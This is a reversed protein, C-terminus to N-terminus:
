ALLLTWLLGAASRDIPPFCGTPQACNHSSERDNAADADCGSARYLKALGLAARLEISRAKQSQAIAIAVGGERGRRAEDIEGIRQM